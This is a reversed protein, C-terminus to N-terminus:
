NGKQKGTLQALTVKIVAVAELQKEEFIFDNRGSYQKMIANLGKIKEEPSNIIEASGFGVVSKYNISWGCAKDNKIIEGSLDFQVCVNNNEKLIDLKKGEKASHFYIIPPDNEVFGFNMAVIYPKNNVCLGLRCVKSERIINYIEGKEKIERGSRRM